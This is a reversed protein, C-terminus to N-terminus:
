SLLERMKKTADIGNMVPMKFDTFIVKYAMGNDYTHKLKGIAEQGNLCFDVHHQCDIKLSGLIAKMATICFEEDDVVM